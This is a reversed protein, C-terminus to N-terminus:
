GIRNEADGRGLVRKEASKDTEYVTREETM